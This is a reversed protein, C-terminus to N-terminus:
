PLDLVRKAIINRQIQNSGGYITAPRAKYFPGLVNMRASGLLVDGTLGGGPGATEVILDAIRQFLETAFIKLLSVDPGLEEGRVVVSVFRQYINALHAVDLQLVALRDLFVADQDVGVARAVAVLIQLGYEPMKPSGLSIREFGLLSKAMTWGGNLEGVLNASSTRVNDFFVENLEEHGAIDRIPRVVVGPSKLDVLFFSIGDQRKAHPDTRALVFMHTADQALTTWTKQGNIVFEDGDPEATTRLAALDSGAEPESYGQCWIEECALIPGLYRRRQAETGFRMLLPGVMLIGHDQFRAIGCREQEELFALSKAASLGMGGHERSWNPALWGKAAMRLYWPKLESWRRRHPSFRLHSPYHQEFDTRVMFRFDDDRMANWDTDPSADRAPLDQSKTRAKRATERQWDRSDSAFWERRHWAANGLWASLVLSRNLYLGLGYEEAFGMAGHLQVAESCVSLAAQGARAKAGSAAAQRAEASAGPDDFLVAVADIAAEALKSQIWIDVARHQLAQFSGIAVGFQKRTRLYDLTMEMVRSMVGVLEASTAILAVAVADRLAVCGRAASVLLAHRQVRVANLTLTGFSSGDATTERDVRMGPADHEIWYIELGNSSMASVLFVDASPVPVFRSTGSLRLNGGKPVVSIDCSQPELGGREGQWAVTAVCSGNLLSALRYRHETPRDANVLLRPAMLGAAVFPEPYVAYGVRRAIIAADSVGLGLGGLEEPVIASLWGQEAMEIWTNRDFGQASRTTRRVRDHDIKIFAAAAAALMASVSQEHSPEVPM